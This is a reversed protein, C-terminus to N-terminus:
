RTSSPAVAAARVPEDGRRGADTWEMDQDAPGMFLIYLRVADAGYMTSWSTPAPRREGEVEVDEHRGDAGLGPPVAAPVARPLRGHGAREAGQRLLALLAPARDRPRDRRHVPRGADLLRRAPPRVAGPRQAPRLLAPLVLVLRRVHGDHRGRAAGPRRVEPVARQDVGRQLGAAPRGEAPLGRGRAAPRAARGGSAARRRLRRLLRDPIPCGWYRQRSFGWDRLRYSVAPRGEAAGRSGRSSRARAAEEAPLGTFQGSDILKGADEDIVERITLDFAEAFERDREDHAPVAMIAGTGYEMLVYDAVWVPIREGNVPNIAHLGTFVGTKEVAAAREETKKASAHRVYARVEESEIRPILEHEPALVFFTAGFLTDPRTTFVPM